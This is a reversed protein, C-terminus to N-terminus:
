CSSAAPIPLTSLRNGADIQRIGTRGSIPATIATYELLVRANDIQADDSEIAAELQSVTARQTDLTQRPAFQRAVLETSRALDLRANDVTAQDKKRNAEM